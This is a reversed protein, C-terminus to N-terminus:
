GQLKGGLSRRITKWHLTANNQKKTIYEEIMEETSM